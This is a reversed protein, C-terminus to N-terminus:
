RIVTDDFQHPPYRDLNRVLRSTPLADDPHCAVEKLAGRLLLANVWNLGNKTKIEVDPLHLHSYCAALHRRIPLLITDANGVAGADRFGFRGQKRQGHLIPHDALVLGPLRENVAILQVTRAALLQQLTDAGRRTGDIPLSPEQTLASAQEAVMAALEGPRPPRGKETLSRRMLEPNNAMEPADQTRWRM